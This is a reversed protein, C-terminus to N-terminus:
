EASNHLKEPDEDKAQTVTLTPSSANPIKLEGSYVAMIENMLWLCFASSERFPSQPFTELAPNAPFNQLEWKEVCALLVPFRRKFSATLHERKDEAEKLEDMWAEIVEAQPLTLPDSITM